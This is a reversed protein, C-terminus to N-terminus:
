KPLPKLKTQMSHLDKKLQELDSPDVFGIKNDTRGDCAVIADVENKLSIVLDKFKMHERRLPM